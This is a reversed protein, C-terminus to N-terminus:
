RKRTRKRKRRRKSKGRGRKKRKRRKKKTKKKAGKGEEKEDAAFSLSYQIAGKKLGRKKEQDRVISSMFDEIQKRYQSEEEEETLSPPSSDDPPTKLLEDIKEEEKKKSLGKTKSLESIIRQVELIFAMAESKKKFGKEKKIKNRDTMKLPNKMYKLIEQKTPKVM